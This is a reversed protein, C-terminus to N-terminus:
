FGAETSAVMAQDNAFIIDVLLRRRVPAGEEVRDDDDEFLFFVVGTVTSM